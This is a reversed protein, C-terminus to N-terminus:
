PPDKLDVDGGFSVFQARMYLSMRCGRPKELEDIRKKSAKFDQHMPSKYHFKCILSGDGCKPKVVDESRSRDEEQKELPPVGLSDDVCFVNECRESLKPRSKSVDFVVTEDGARLTIKGDFVDILAKATCLFLRGLILPVRDDAEMDLVVFDVPFVFKDVKVLLNEIIGRPYKVSKDALTLTM